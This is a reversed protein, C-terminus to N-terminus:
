PVIEVELGENWHKGEPTYYLYVNGAKAKYKGPIEAKLDLQITKTEKPAFGMWYLVLYNDFIEYYAVRKQETLEKLQWPQLSLGAPIGIKAIAMPQLTDKRNKVAITMRVTEGMRPQTNSISTNLLLDAKESNPPTLTNYSVELNYPIGREQGPYEVAFTNPGQHLFAAISDDPSIARGNVSFRIDTSKALEGALRTYETVAQLALVTGQTSGYGYYSKTALIKSILESVTGMDPRTDRMLALAYLSMTEVRLSIDRSNVVSTGASLKLTLYNANLQDMLRRYDDEKKMNSAALAMMSLQYADNSETAKKLAAAYEPGIKDGYGAQTLAYVIYIDAIKDPVAAFQDYGGASVKFGGQGDRRTMLFDKTRQLMNKDVDLFAQMDTFELLGYATLAAHAPSHGFWEFGNESTEFGILRKYGSEIYQMAKKEIEPNSKGTERLYKLIFINPYTSSSTQEFCGSPERLMSEIGNMLQGELDNYLALKAHLSGPLMQGIQWDHKAGTNGSFTEIVPFGKGTASVPLVITENSLNSTISIKVKGNAPATASLPILVQRSAGPDLAVANNFSGTYMNGPLSIGITATLKEASNNKIVVPILAQDGVTLYPPIKADVSMAARAVYTTDARGLWGNYGIGEAIARFTTTADSNYFEVTAKGEKDTQITPNWYITERFDNREDTVTSKYVPTYFRRAVTLVPGESTFYRTAYQSNGTINFRLKENRLPKSQILIVGNAARAGYRGIAEADKLVTVSEIDNAIINTLDYKEQPVGDIVILPENGNNFARAGRIRVMPMEAANAMPTIDLGAVKGQLAQLMGGPPIAKLEDDEVIRVSAVLDKKRMAGFGIVVVDNLAVAKYDFKIALNVKEPQPVPPLQQIYGIGNQQLHIKIPEAKHSSKAILLYSGREVLNPFYFQGDAGTQLKLAKGGATNNILFVTAPVPQDKDNTVLGCVINGQDPTFKLEGNRSVEDIFNFYRYGNTLMVLDLALPAKPEEKKFYFPPEEIPGRLESSMLLWSLINDQRDDALTWLKDDVVSLSFNSPIPQGHEDRTTIMMIVKERPLYHQKNAAITVHLQEDSNLFVLREALPQKESNYLTFQAIGAPFINEQLTIKNVGKKLRLNQSYYSISKTRGVIRATTESTSSYKITITGANKSINMVVGEPAVAPLPYQQNINAPSTITATYNEGSRPAFPFEGMGFKYSDFAAVIQGKNDKIVGKIDVPKGFENIAKFAINTALGAILSGGEPLFQLDIKNLTIPISRAISETHSDYDVTINLLGDTTHLDQPLAFSLAAKGNANTTFSGKRQIQGDLSVTFKGSYHKIPADDLNRISFNAAVDDGAGYGKRDFDLRMLIRPAIINQVTFTKTFLTSDKENLMWTTYAKIKYIGGVAQEGLTYSGESYGNEIRYTQKELTTGSPGLIEIYAINSLGSPKNDSGRVLWTKFFITEGPTYFVHDTQIYIKEKDYTYDPSPQPGPSQAALRATCLISFAFLLFHLKKM